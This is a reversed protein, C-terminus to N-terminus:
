KFNLFSYINGSPSVALIVAGTSGNVSTVGSRAGVEAIAAQVNTSAVGGAPSFTVNGAAVNTGVATVGAEFFANDGATLPGTFTITTSNTEVYADAFQRVGNIYVMVANTGVVYSNLLNFVTQGATATQVERLISFNPSVVGAAAQWSVGNYIRTSSSTSNFYIAGTQLTGGENDKLPDSTKSGLNLKGGAIRSAEAAAASVGSATAQTTATGAQTTATAASASANGAQTTATTASTAGEVANGYTNTALTVLELATVTKLATAWAFAKANYTTRDALSPFDPITTIVPAVTPM